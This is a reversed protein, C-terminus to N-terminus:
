LGGRPQRTGAHDRRCFGSAATAATTHPAAANNRPARAAATAPLPGAAMTAVAGQLANGDQVLGSLANNIETVVTSSLLSRRGRHRQHDFIALRQLDDAASRNNGIGLRARRSRGPAACLGVAVPCQHGDLLAAPACEPEPGPELYGATYTENVPVALSPDVINIDIEVIRATASTTTTVGLAAQLGLMGGSGLTAVVAYTQQTATDIEIIAGQYFGTTSAVQIETAAPIASAALSVARRRSPTVTVAIQGSWQGPSRAWFTPGQANLTDSTVYVNAAALAAGIPAALTITAPTAQANYSAVTATLPVAGNMVPTGNKYFFSLSAGHSVERLATFTLTQQTAANAATVDAQLQLM